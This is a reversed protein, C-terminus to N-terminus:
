SGVAPAPGSALGSTARRIFRHFHWFQGLIDIVAPLLRPEQHLTTKLCRRFMALSEPTFNARAFALLDGTKDLFRSIMEDGGTPMEPLHDVAAVWAMLREGFAEPAYARGLFELNSRVLGASDFNKFVVNSAMQWEGSPM